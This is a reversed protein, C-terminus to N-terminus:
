TDASESLRRLGLRHCFLVYPDEDIAYQCGFLRKSAFGHPFALLCSITWVIM